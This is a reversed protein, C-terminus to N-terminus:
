AQKFLGDQRLQRVCEYTLLPVVWCLWGVTTSTQADTGLQEVWPIELILRFSVFSFTLIYSRMVWERHAQIRRRIAAVLAVATTVLWVVAGTFLAVGFTWEETHFSLQFATAAGCVIGAVYLRGTWRHVTMLRRWRHVTLHPRRLGSWFQFPGILLALSGGLVHILLWGSREWFREYSAETYQLYQVADDILFAVSLFIIMLAGLRAFTRLVVNLTSQRDATLDSSNLPATMM